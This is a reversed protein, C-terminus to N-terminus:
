YNMLAAILCQLVAASVAGWVLEATRRSERKQFILMGLITGIVWIATAALPIVLM